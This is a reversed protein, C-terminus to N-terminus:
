ENYGELEMVEYLGEKLTFKPKWGLLQIKTINAYEVEQEDGRMQMDDKIIIMNKNTLENINAVIESLSVPVGSGINYISFGKPANNILM